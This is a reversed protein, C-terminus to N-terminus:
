AMEPAKGVKRPVSFFSVRHALSASQEGFLRKYLSSPSCSGVMMSAAESDEIERGM